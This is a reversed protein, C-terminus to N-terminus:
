KIKGIMGINEKVPVQRRIPKVVDDIKAQVELTIGPTSYSVFVLMMNLFAPKLECLLHITELTPFPLKRYKGLTVYLEFSPVRCINALGEYFHMCFHLHSAPERERGQFKNTM